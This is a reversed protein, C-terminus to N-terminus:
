KAGGVLELGSEVLEWFRNDFNLANFVDENFVQSREDTFLDLSSRDSTYVGRDMLAATCKVSGGGSSYACVAAVGPNVTAGILISYEDTCKLGAFEPVAIGGDLTGYNYACVGGFAIGSENSMTTSAAFTGSALVGKIDGRNIAVCPSYMGSPDSASLEYVIHCNQVTGYNILAIGGFASGKVEVDKFVVKLNRVVGGEGISGFLSWGDPASDFDCTITYGRGDFVGEFPRDPSGIRLAADDIVINDTLVCDDNFLSEGHAAIEDASSITVQESFDMRFSDGSFYGYLAGAILALACLVIAAIKAAFVTKDKKLNKAM